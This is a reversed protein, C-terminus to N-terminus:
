YNRGDVCAVKTFPADGLYRRRLRILRRMAQLAQLPGRTHRWVLRFLHWRIRRMVWWSRWRGLMVRGGTAQAPSDAPSAAPAAEERDPPSLTDPKGPDLPQSM